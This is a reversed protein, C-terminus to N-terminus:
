NLKVRLVQTEGGRSALLVVSVMAAVLIVIILIALVM